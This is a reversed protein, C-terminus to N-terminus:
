GNKHRHHPHIMEYEGVVSALISLALAMPERSHQVVGIPSNIRMLDDASVGGAVLREAREDRATKGGQAGLFFADTGLAWKLIAQEWEHDHFLLIIATWPDVSVDKPSKGLTLANSSSKDHCEVELGAARAISALAQLEPGEGFIVLRLAPLYERLKLPSPSPLAFSASIRQELRTIVSKCAQHDPNPDILVDLGSGCPLRFDIQPSGAGFRMVRRDGGKAIEAALQNELCGDSLSGVFTGDARM